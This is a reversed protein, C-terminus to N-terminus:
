AKGTETTLNCALIQGLEEGEIAEEVFNPLVDGVFIVVVEVVLSITSGSDRHALCVDLLALIGHSLVSLLVFVEDEDVLADAFSRGDVFSGLWAFCTPSRNTTHIRTVVAHKTVHTM